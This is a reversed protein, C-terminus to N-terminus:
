KGGTVKDYAVLTEMCRACYIEDNLVHARVRDVCKRAARLEAVLPSVLGLQIGAEVLMLRAADLANGIPGTHGGALRFWENEERQVQEVVKAIATGTDQTRRETRDLDIM